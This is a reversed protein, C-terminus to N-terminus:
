LFVDCDSFDFFATLVSCAINFVQVVKPSNISIRFLVNYLNAIHLVHPFISDLDLVGVHYMWAWSDQNAASGGLANYSYMDSIPNLKFAFVLILKPIAMISIFAVFWGTFRGAFWKGIYWLLLAAIMSVIVSVTLGNVSPTFTKYSARFYGTVTGAMLWVVCIVALITVSFYAAKILKSQKIM